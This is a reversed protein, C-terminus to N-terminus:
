KMRMFEIKAGDMTTWTMAENQFDYQYVFIASQTQIKIRKNDGFTYRGPAGDHTLSGNPLFEWVGEGAGRANKWKGVIEKKPGGCGALAFLLLAASTLSVLNKWSM